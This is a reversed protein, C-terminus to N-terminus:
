IELVNDNLLKARFSFGDISPTQSIVGRTTGSQTMLLLCM